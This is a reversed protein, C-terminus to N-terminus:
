DNKEFKPDKSIKLNKSRLFLKIINFCVYEQEARPARDLWTYIFSFSFKKSFIRMAQVRCCIFLIIITLINQRTM